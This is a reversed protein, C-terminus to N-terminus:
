DHLWGFVGEVPRQIHIVRIIVSFITTALTSAKQMILNYLSVGCITESNAQLMVPLYRRKNMLFENTPPYRM